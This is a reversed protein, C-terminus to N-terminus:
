AFDHNEETQDLTIRLGGTMYCCREWNVLRSPLSANQGSAVMKRLRMEIYFCGVSIKLGIKGDGLFCVRRCSGWSKSRKALKLSVVQKSLEM